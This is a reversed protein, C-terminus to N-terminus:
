KYIYKVFMEVIHIDKLFLVLQATLNPFHFLLLIFYFLKQPKKHRSFRFQKACICDSLLFQLGYYQSSM